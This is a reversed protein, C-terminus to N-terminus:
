NLNSCAAAALWGSKAIINQILKGVVHVTMNASGM